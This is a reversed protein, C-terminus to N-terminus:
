FSHYEQELRWKRRTLRLYGPMAEYHSIALFWSQERKFRTEYM